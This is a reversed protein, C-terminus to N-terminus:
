SELLFEIESDGSDEQLLSPLTYIPINNITAIAIADGSSIDFYVFNDKDKIEVKAYSLTEEQHNIIVSTLEMKNYKCLDNVFKQIPPTLAMNVTKSLGYLMSTIQGIDAIIYLSKGIRKNYLQVEWSDVSVNIIDKIAVEVLKFDEVKHLKEM